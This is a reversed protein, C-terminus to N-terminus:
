GRGFCDGARRSLILFVFPWKLKYNAFTKWRLGGRSIRSEIRDHYIGLKTKLIRSFAQPSGFGADASIDAISLSTSQLLNLARNIRYNQIYSGLPIGSSEKFLFRLRSESLGVAEDLDIQGGPTIPFISPNDPQAVRVVNLDTTCSRVLSANM